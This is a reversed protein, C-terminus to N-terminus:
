ATVLYPIKLYKRGNRPNDKEEKLLTRQHVLTKLIKIFDLKHIKEKTVQTKLTVNLRWLEQTVNSNPYIDPSFVTLPRFDLNIKWGM